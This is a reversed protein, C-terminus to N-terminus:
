SNGANKLEFSFCTGVGPVSDLHIKGDMLEVLRKTITLGIGAGEVEARHKELRYFPAFITEQKEKPIGPGTDTVSVLIMEESTRHASLTITGEDKNYKVANSMLNILIQALRLPDCLVFFNSDNSVENILSLKRGAALPSIIPIVKEEIITSLKIEQEKIKIKGSEIGSLDLIENILELLHKGAKRIHSLNSKQLDLRDEKGLDMTMLQSFGLVANMPTRLEHSMRALFESKARNAQVADEKEEQLVSTRELFNERLETKADELQKIYSDRQVFIKRLKLQSTVRAQVESYCFPKPIYDICGLHFGKEIDTSLNKASVFIIPISQTSVDAKLIRCVEFGNMEPMMIDLLILDPQVRPALDVAIKGNPAMTISVELSELTKILVTLNVPNDEVIMVTMGAVSSADEGQFFEKKKKQNGLFLHTRVRNCVEDIQFPKTIYEECGLSFGEEIEDVATKATIFVIPIDSTTNDAKLRRCAEFGDMEPMMVDMLILDPCAKYAIDLAIKGNSAEFINFREEQLTQTLVKINTPNDDVVLIKKGVLNQEQLTNM